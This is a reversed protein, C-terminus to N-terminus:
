HAGPNKDDHPLDGVPRLVVLFPHSGCDRPTGRRERRVRCPGRRELRLSSESISPFEYAHWHRQASQRSGSTINTNADVLLFLHASASLYAASRPIRITFEVFPDSPERPIRPFMMAVDGFGAVPVYALRERMADLAAPFQEWDRRRNKWGNSHLRDPLAEAPLTPFAAIWEDRPTDFTPFRLPTWLGNREHIALHFCEASSFDCPGRREAGKRFRNAVPRTSHGYCGRLAGPWPDRCITSTVTISSAGRHRERRPQRSVWKGVRCRLPDRYCDSSAFPHSETAPDTLCRSIVVSWCVPYNPVHAPEGTNLRLASLQPPM